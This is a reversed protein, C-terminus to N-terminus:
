WNYVVSGVIEDQIEIIKQQDKSFSEKIFNNLKLLSLNENIESETVGLIMLHTAFSLTHYTRGSIEREFPILYIRKLMCGGYCHKAYVIYAVTNLINIHTKVVFLAGISKFTDILKDPDENINISGPYWSPTGEWAFQKDRVSAALEFSYVQKTYQDDLTMTRQIAHLNGIDDRMEDEWDKVNEYVHYEGKPVTFSIPVEVGKYVHASTQPRISSSPKPSVYVQNESNQVSGVEESNNSKKQQVDSFKTVLRVLDPILLALIIIGLFINKIRIKIM